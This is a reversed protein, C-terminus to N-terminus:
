DERELFWVIESDSIKMRGAFGSLAPELQSLKFDRGLAQSLSAQTLVCRDAINVRVYGGADDVVVDAGPNDTEIATIVADALDVDVGRILPGVLKVHTAAKM